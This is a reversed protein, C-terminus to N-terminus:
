KGVGRGDLRERPQGSQVGITSWSGFEDPPYPLYSYNAERVWCGISEKEPKSRTKQDVTM